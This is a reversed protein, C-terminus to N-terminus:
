LKRHAPQKKQETYQSTRARALLSDNNGVTFFVLRRQKPLIARNTVTRFAFPSREVVTFDHRAQSFGLM